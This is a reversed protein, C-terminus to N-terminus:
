HLHLYNIKKKETLLDQPDQPPAPAKESDVSFLFTSTLIGGPTSLPVLSLTLDSPSAPIFPPGLPSKYTSINTFSWGKKLLSSSFM